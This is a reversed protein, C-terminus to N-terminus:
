SPKGSAYIAIVSIGLVIMAIYLTFDNIIHAMRAFLGFILTLLSAAGIAQPTGFQKLSVFIIIFFGLLVMMGWVYNTTSNSLAFFDSFNGTSNQLASVDWM